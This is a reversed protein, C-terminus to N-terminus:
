KVTHQEVWAVGYGATFNALDDTAKKATESKMDARFGDRDDWSLVALGDFPPTQGEPAGTVITVDYGRLFEYGDRAVPAHSTLWYDRFEEVSMGDKRTLWLLMKM